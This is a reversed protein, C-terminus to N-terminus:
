PAPPPTPTPPASAPTPPADATRRYYGHVERRQRGEQAIWGHRAANATALESQLADALESQLADALESQLAEALEVPLSLPSAAPAAGSAGQASVTATEGQQVAVGQEPFLAALHAAVAQHAERAAVAFRATLSDMTADARVPTVDICLEEGWV